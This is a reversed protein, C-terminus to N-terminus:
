ALIAPLSCHLQLPRAVFLSGLDGGPHLDCAVGISESVLCPRSSLTTSYLQLATVAM